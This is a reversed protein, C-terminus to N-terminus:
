VICGVVWSLRGTSTGTRTATIDGGSADKHVYSCPREEAPLDPFTRAWFDDSTDNIQPNVDVLSVGHGLYREATAFVGAEGLVREVAAFLAASEDRRAYFRSAEFDRVGSRGQERRAELRDFLPRSLEALSQLAPGPMSVVACGDRRLVSYLGGEDPAEGRGRQPRDLLHSLAMRAKAAIGGLGAAERVHLPIMEYRIARKLKILLWSPLFRLLAALRAALGPTEVFGRYAPHAAYDVLGRANRGALRPDDAARPPKVVQYSM